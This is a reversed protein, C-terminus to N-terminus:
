MPTADMNIAESDNLNESSMWSLIASQIRKRKDDDNVLKSTSKRDCIEVSSGNFSPPTPPTPPTPPKPPSHTPFSYESPESPSWQNDIANASASKSNGSVEQRPRCEEASKSKFPTEPQAFEQIDELPSTSCTDRVGSGDSVGRGRATSLQVGDDVQLISSSEPASSSSSSGEEEESSSVTDSEYNNEIARQSRQRMMGLAQLVFQSPNQFYPMHFRVPASHRPTKEMKAQDWVSKHASEKTEEWAAVGEELHQVWLAEEEMEEGLSPLKVEGISRSPRDDIERSLRSSSVESGSRRDGIFLTTRRRRRVPTQHSTLIRSDFSSFSVIVEPDDMEPLDTARPPSWCENYRTPMIALLM